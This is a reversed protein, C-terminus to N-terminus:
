RSYKLPAHQRTPNQRGENRCSELNDLPFFICCLANTAVHPISALHRSKGLFANPSRWGTHSHPQAHLIHACHRCHGKARVAGRYCHCICGIFYHQEINCCQLVCPPRPLTSGPQRGAQEVHRAPDHVDGETGICRHSGQSLVCASHATDTSSSSAVDQRRNALDRRNDPSQDLTWAALSTMGKSHPRLMFRLPHSWHISLKCNQDCTCDATRCVDELKHLMSKLAGGGASAGLLFSLRMTPPLGAASPLAPCFKLINVRSFGQRSHSYVLLLATSRTRQFAHQPTPALSWGQM